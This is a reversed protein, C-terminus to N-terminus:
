QMGSASASLVEDAIAVVDIELEDHTVTMTTTCPPLTTAPESRPGSAKSSGGGGSQGGSSSGGDASQGGSSSSGDGSQGGSSSSNVDSEVGITDLAEIPDRGNTAPGRGGPGSGGGGGAGGSGGGGQGEAHSYDDDHYDTHDSDAQSGHHKLPARYDYDFRYDPEHHWDFAEHQDGLPGPGHHTVGGHHNHHRHNRSYSKGNDAHDDDYDYDYDVHLHLGQRMHKLDAQAGYYSHHDFARKGQGPKGSGEQFIHDRGDDGGDFESDGAVSHITHHDSHDGDYGFGHGGEDGSGLGYGWRTDQPKHPRLQMRLEHSWDARGGPSTFDGSAAKPMVNPTQRDADEDGVRLLDCRRIFVLGLLCRFSPSWVLFRRWGNAGGALPPAPAM